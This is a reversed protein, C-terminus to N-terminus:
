VAFEHSPSDVASGFRRRIAVPSQRIAFLSYRIAFLSYRITKLPCHKQVASFKRRMLLHVM